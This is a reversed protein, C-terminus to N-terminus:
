RQKVEGGGPGSHGWVEVGAEQELEAAAQFYDSMANLADRQISLLRERIQALKLVDIEGLEYATQLKDLNAELAPLIDEGYVRVREAAANVRVALRSVRPGLRRVFADREAEARVREARARARGAQNREWIPLPVTLSGQWVYAPGGPESEQQFAAGITPDPWAEREELEVRAQAAAVSEELQRRRPHERLARAVLADGNPVEAPRPLDGAVRLQREVPWGITEQLILMTERETQRAAIADKRAQAVEARIVMATLPSEEGADIRKQTVQQVETVFEAVQEAALRQMRRLLLQHYLAHVQLHVSWATAVLGEAAAGRRREATEVRAARQGAIQLRQSVQVGYEFRSTGNITRGGLRGTLSPNYPLLPSAADVEAEGAVADGRAIVIAPARASAYELLDALSLAKAAHLTDVSVALEQDDLESTADGGVAVGRRPPTDWARAAGRPPRAGTTPACGVMAFVLLGHWWGDRMKRM